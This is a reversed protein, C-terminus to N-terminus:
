AGAVFLLARLLFAAPFAIATCVVLVIAALVRGKFLGVIAALVVLGALPIALIVGSEAAFMALLGVVFCFWGFKIAGSPKEAPPYSPVTRYRDTMATGGVGARLMPRCPASHLPRRRRSSGEIHAALLEEAGHSNPMPGPPGPHIFGRQSVM